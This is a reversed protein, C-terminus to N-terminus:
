YHFTLYILASWFIAYVALLVAGAVVTVLALNRSGGRPQRLGIVALVLGLVCLGISVVYHVPIAVWALVTIVFAALTLKHHQAPAKKAQAPQEAAQVQAINDTPQIDM